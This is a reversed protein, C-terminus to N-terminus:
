SDRTQSTRGFALVWSVVVVNCVTGDAMAVIRHSTAVALTRLWQSHPMPAILCCVLRVTAVFGALLCLLLTEFCCRPLAICFDRRKTGHMTVLVLRIEQEFRALSVSVVFGFM